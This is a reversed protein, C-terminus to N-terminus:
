SKSAALIVGLPGFPEQGFGLLLGLGMIAAMFAMIRCVKPTWTFTRQYASCEYAEGQYGRPLFNALLPFGSPAIDKINVIPNSNMTGRLYISYPQPYTYSLLVGMYGM